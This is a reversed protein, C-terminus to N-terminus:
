NTPQWFFNDLFLRSFQLNILWHIDRRVITGCCCNDRTDQETKASFSKKSSQFYFYYGPTTFSVLYITNVITRSLKSLVDGMPCTIEAKGSVRLYDFM